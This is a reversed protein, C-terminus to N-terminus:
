PLMAPVLRPSSGRPARLAAGCPSPTPHLRTACTAELVIRALPEWQEPSGRAYGCALASCFAQSVTHREQVPILDTEGTSLDRARFPVEVGSHIGIRLRRRLADPDVLSLLEALHALGANPRSPDDAVRVDSYGNEVSVLANGDDGKLGLASVAEASLKLESLLDSLTNLQNSSTQGRTGDAMPVFYNRYVTAPAAAISCAPGQTHDQAYITVGDEPVAHPSAMELCNFQSAAQFMASRSDPHSHLRFVDDVAIHEVQLQAGEPAGAVSGRLEQLSPTSFRGVNFSAGNVTSKLISGSVCLKSHVNAHPCAAVEFEAFGFLKTFWDAARAM